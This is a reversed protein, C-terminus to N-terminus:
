SSSGTKPNRSKIARQFAKVVPILNCLNAIFNQMFKQMSAKLPFQVNEIKRSYLNLKQFKAFIKAYKFEGFYPRKLFTYNIM